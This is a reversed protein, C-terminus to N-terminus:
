PLTKLWLNRFHAKIDGGGELQIALVGHDAAITHNQEFYVSMLHGNVLYMPAFRKLAYPDGVTGVITSADAVTLGKHVM